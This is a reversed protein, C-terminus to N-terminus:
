CASGSVLDSTGHRKLMSSTVCKEKACKARTMGIALGSQRLPGFGDDFLAAFDCVQV